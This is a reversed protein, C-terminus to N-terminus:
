NNDDNALWAKVLLKVLKGYKPPMKLEDLKKTTEKVAAELSMKRWQQFNSELLDVIEKFQSM